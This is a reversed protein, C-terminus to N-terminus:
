LILMFIICYRTDFTFTLQHNNILIIKQWLFLLKMLEHVNSMEMQIFLLAKSEMDLKKRSIMCM